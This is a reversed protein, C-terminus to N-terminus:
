HGSNRGAQRATTNREIEDIRRMINDLNTEMIDQVVLLHSGAAQAAAIGNKNDEVVLCEEPQLSFHRIAKEYIDPAPKSRKVDENSLILDPYSDLHAREMMKEVSARVANSCVAIKYGAEKLRSLAYEHIFIPFCKEQVIRMTFVQKMENIFDHMQEPLNREESLIQLKKQTPLGDFISLHADRSISFGFLGLAQNLADYHWERADILVGDMDFLVAKIKRNKM